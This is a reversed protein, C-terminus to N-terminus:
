ATRPTALGNGIQTSSQGTIRIVNQMGDQMYRRWFLAIIAAAIPRAFAHTPQFRYTWMIHTDAGKEEFYWFGHAEKVLWSLPGTFGSVKYGFEARNQAPAGDSPVCHTIEERVRMGDALVVTRWRGVSDWRGDQDEVAVVAPIPGKASPFVDPLDIPVFREWVEALNAHVAGTVIAKPGSDNSM